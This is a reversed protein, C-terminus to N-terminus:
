DKFVLFRDELKYKNALKEQQVQENKTEKNKLKTGDELYKIISSFLKNKM